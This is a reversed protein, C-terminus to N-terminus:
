KWHRGSILYAPARRAPLPGLAQRHQM